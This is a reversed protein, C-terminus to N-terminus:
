SRFTLPGEDGNRPDKKEAYVAAVGVKEVVWYRERREVVQEVDLWVHEESPAIFFRAGDQRVREYEEPTMEIRESCERRACECLWEGVALLLESNDNLEKVRENIERFISQNIGARAGRDISDGSATM